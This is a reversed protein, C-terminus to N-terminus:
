TDIVVDLPSPHSHLGNSLAEGSSYNAAIAREFRVERGGSDGLIARFM